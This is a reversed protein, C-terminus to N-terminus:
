SPAARLWLEGQGLHTINGSSDTIQLFHWYLGSKSAFDTNDLAIAANGSTLTIQGAASTKTLLVSGTFPKRRRRPVATYVKWEATSGLVNLLDADSEYLEINLTSDTGVALELPEFRRLDRAM